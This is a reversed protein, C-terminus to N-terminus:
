EILASVCAATRVQAAMQHKLESIKQKQKKTKNKTELIEKERLAEEEWEEKKQRQTELKLNQIEEEYESRVQRLVEEDVRVTEAM